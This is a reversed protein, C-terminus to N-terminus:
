DVLGALERRLQRLVRSAALFVAPVNIGLEAGVERAPRARVIYEWCAKWSRDEFETKMLRLASAILYQRYGQEGLIGGPDEESSTLLDPEALSHPPGVRQCQRERWRTLLITRLWSRFGPSSNSEFRPLTEILVGFVDQVLEAADAESAGKQWAWHFLLPAYLEVFRNWAADSQPQRLRQLLTVPTTYM